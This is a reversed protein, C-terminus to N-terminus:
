KGLRGLTRSLQALQQDVKAVERRLESADLDFSARCHRCTLKTKTKLTGITESSKKGCHPCPLEITASDLASKM